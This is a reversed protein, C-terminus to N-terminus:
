IAGAASSEEAAPNGVTSTPTHLKWDRQLSNIYLLCLIAFTNISLITDSSETGFRINFTAFGFEPAFHASDNVELGLFLYIGAAYFYCCGNVAFGIIQLAQNYRSLELGREADKLTMRGCYVSFGTLMLMLIYIVLMAGSLTAQQILALIVLGLALLGGAVQYIGFNRTQAKLRALSSASNM